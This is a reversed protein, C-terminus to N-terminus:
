CTSFFLLLRRLYIKKLTLGASFENFIKACFFAHFM